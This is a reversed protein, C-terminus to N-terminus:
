GKMLAKQRSLSDAHILAMQISKLTIEPTVYPPLLGALVLATGRIELTTEADAEQGQQHLFNDCM